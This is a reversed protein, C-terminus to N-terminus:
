QLMLHNASRPPPYLATSPPIGGRIIDLDLTPAGPDAPGADHVLGLASQRVRDTERHPAPAPSGPRQEAVDARLAARDRHAELKCQLVLLLMVGIRAKGRILSVRQAKAERNSGPLRLRKQFHAPSLFFSRSKAPFPKQPPQTTRRSSRNARPVTFQPPM